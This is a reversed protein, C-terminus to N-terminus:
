IKLKAAARECELIWEKPDIKSEIVMKEESYYYLKLNQYNSKRISDKNTSIMMLSKKQLLEQSMMQHFPEPRRFLNKMM